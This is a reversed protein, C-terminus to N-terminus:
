GEGQHSEGALDTVQVDATINYFLGRRRINADTMEALQEKTFPLLMPMDIRFAGTEDTVAEGDYLEEAENGFYNWWCWWANRRSVTYKVKAGQVPVGAYTKAFGEVSITDGHAYQEKYDSFEIQFTPRKYEEVRITTSGEVDARAKITFNGTLGSAPLTFDVAATGFSDTTVTKESVLQYNADLLRITM